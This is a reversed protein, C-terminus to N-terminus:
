GAVAGNYYCGDGMKDLMKEFLKERTKGNENKNEM